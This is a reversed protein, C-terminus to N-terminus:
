HACSHNPNRSNDQSYCVHGLLRMWRRFSRSNKAMRCPNSVSIIRKADVVKSYSHQGKRISRKILEEADSSDANNRSTLRETAASVDFRGRHRKLAEIDSVLWNEYKRDKIVVYIPPIGNPLLAGIGDQIESARQGPCDNLKERDLLVFIKDPDRTKLLLAIEQAIRAVLRPMPATPHVKALISITIAEPVIRKLLDAATYYEADGESIIAITM